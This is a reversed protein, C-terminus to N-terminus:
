VRIEGEDEGDWYHVREAHVKILVIGPTNIGQPFYIELDKTWHAEFAAKDRILEGQGEITIFFPRQGVIGSSGQYSLGVKPDRAIDSVSRASDYAFFFSDGDYEVDRNNSMPRAAITGGDGHTSLTCYDIKAMKSSLDALTKYAM